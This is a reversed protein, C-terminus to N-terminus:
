SEIGADDEDLGLEVLYPLIVGAIQSLEQFHKRVGSPVHTIHGRLVAANMDTKPEEIWIRIIFSQSIQDPTNM